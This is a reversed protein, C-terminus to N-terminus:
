KVRINSPTFVFSPYFPLSKNLTKRNVISQDKDTIFFHEMRQLWYLKIKPRYRIIQSMNQKCAVQSNIVYITINYYDYVM